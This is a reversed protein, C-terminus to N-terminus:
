KLAFHDVNIDKKLVFCSLFWVRQPQVYKYLRAIHPLVGGGHGTDRTGPYLVDRM